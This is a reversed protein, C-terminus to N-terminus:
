LCYDGKGTFWHYRRLLNNRWSWWWNGVESGVLEIDSRERCIRGSRAFIRCARPNSVTEGGGDRALGGEGTPASPHIETIEERPFICTYPEL